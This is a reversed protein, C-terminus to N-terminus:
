YKFKRKLSVETKIINKIKNVMRKTSVDEINELEKINYWKYTDVENPDIKLNEKKYIPYLYRIDFHWHELEIIGNKMKEPIKHVDIDFIDDSILTINKVGIEEKAERISAQQSNENNEVHGGPSLWKKYNSHFILLVNEKTEDIIFASSTIHGFINKKTYFNKSDSSLLFNYFVDKNDFNNQKIYDIFKSKEM